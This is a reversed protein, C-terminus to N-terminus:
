CGLEEQIYADVEFLDEFSLTDTINNMKSLIDQLEEDKHQLEYERALRELNALRRAIIKLEKKNM